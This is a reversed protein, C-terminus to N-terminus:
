NSMLQLRKKTACVIRAIRSCCEPPYVRSNRYWKHYPSSLFSRIYIRLPGIATSYFRVWLSAMQSHKRRQQVEPQTPRSSMQILERLRYVRNSGVVLRLIVLWRIPVLPELLCLMASQSKVCLVLWILIRKWVLIRQDEWWYKLSLSQFVGTRQSKRQKSLSLSVKSEFISISPLSISAM